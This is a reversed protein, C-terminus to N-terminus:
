LCCALVEECTTLEFERKSEEDSELGKESFDPQVSQPLLEKLISASIICIVVGSSFIEILIQLIKYDSSFTKIYDPIILGACIALGIVTCSRISEFNIKKMMSLGTVSVIASVIFLVTLIFLPSLCLFKILKSSLSFIILFIGTLQIIWRSGVGTLQVFGINLPSSLTTMGFTGSILNCIGDLLVARNVKTRKINKGYVFYTVRFILISTLLQSLGAPILQIFAHVHFEPWGYQFPRHLIFSNSNILSQELLPKEEHIKGHILTTFLPYIILVLFAAFLIPLLKFIKLYTISWGKLFKYTPTICEIKQLKFGTILIAAVTLTVIGWQNSINTVASINSGVISNTILNGYTIGVLVTTPILVLPNSLMSDFLGAIGTLGLFAQLLSIMLIGGQLYKLRNQWEQMRKEPGMAYIDGAGPCKLGPQQLIKNLSRIYDVSPLLLVPLRLGATSFILTSIGSTFMSSSILDIRAPDDPHICLSPTIIQPFWIVNFILILLVKFSATAQSKLRPKKSMDM